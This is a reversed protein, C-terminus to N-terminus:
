HRITPKEEMYEVLISNGGKSWVECFDFVLIVLFFVASLDYFIALGQSHLLTIITYPILDMAVQNVSVM